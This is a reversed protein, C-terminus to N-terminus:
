PQGEKGTVLFCNPDHWEGPQSNAVHAARYGQISLQYIFLLQGEIENQDTMKELDALAAGIRDLTSLQVERITKM